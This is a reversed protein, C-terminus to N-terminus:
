GNKWFRELLADDLYTRKFKLSNWGTEGSMTKKKGGRNYKVTKATM